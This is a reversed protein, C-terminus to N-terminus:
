GARPALLAEDSIEAPVYDRPALGVAGAMAALVEAQRPLPEALPAGTFLKVQDVAQYLLMDKGSVVRAGREGAREALVSPWPDYSVDLVATSGLEEPLRDALPDFARAPLTCIAIEAGGLEAAARELPHFELRLGIEGAVAEVRAARAPNRVYVRVSDAGLIHLAAAAATATGGGGIISARLGSSGDVGAHRLANVIGSVDTNHALVETGAAGRVPALTNAVGVLRAFRTSRDAWDLVASKLPMTVSFGRWAPDALAERALGPLTQETTERREYRPGSGLVGYAARHLAPSLSHAIPSGLVAAWPGPAAPATGAPTTEGAM